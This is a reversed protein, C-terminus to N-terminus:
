KKLCVVCGLSFDETGNPPHDIKLPCRLKGPCKPLASIPKRNLYDGQEQRKHCGHCFHTNGWCFWSAVKCCFKCKFTIYQKGHLKCSQTNPGSACSGCVLHSENFKEDVERGAEECKRMGGYYPKKCKFCEYFALRDLGFLKPNEYYKSNRDQLRPDTLLGEIKLRDIAKKEIDKLLKKCPNVIRHLAEHEMISNCLPCDMFKFTIRAAPWKKKVKAQACHYHFFHGCGLRILPAADLAEVWCINCYDAGTVGKDGPACNEHLCPPCVSEDAIGCCTHGCELIKPCAINRKSLCEDDRCCWMLGAGDVFPAMNKEDLQVECFRCKTAKKYKAFGDCTFGLHYPHLGCDGCFVTACSVCRFRCEAKHKLAEESLKKGDVGFEQYCKNIAEKASAADGVFGLSCKPCKIIKKGSKWINEQMEAITEKEELSLGIGRMVREPFPIQCDEHPCLCQEQEWKGSNIGDTLFDYGCDTCLYHEDGHLALSQGAKYQGCMICSERDAMSKLLLRTAEDLGDDFDSFTPVAVPKSSPAEDYQVPPGADHYPEDFPEDGFMADLDNDMQSSPDHDPGGYQLQPPEIFPQEPEIFQQEPLPFGGIPFPRQNDSPMFDNNFSNNKRMHQKDANRVPPPLIEPDSDSTSLREEPTFPIVPIKELIEPQTPMPVFDKTPNVVPVVPIQEPDMQKGCM